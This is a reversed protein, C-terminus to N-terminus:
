RPWGGVKGGVAGGGGLGLCGELCGGVWRIHNSPRQLWPFPSTASLPAEGSAEIDALPEASHSSQRSEVEAPCALPRAGPLCGPLCAPLHTLLCVDAASETRRRPVAMLFLQRLSVCLWPGGSKICMRGPCARDPHMPGTLPESRDVCAALPERPASTRGLELNKKLAAAAAAAPGAHWTNAHEDLALQQELAASASRSAGPALNLYATIEQPRSSSLNANRTPNGARCSRCRAAQAESLSHAGAQGSASRARSQRGAAGGLRGRGAHRCPRRCLSPATIWPTWTVTGHWWPTCGPPWSGTHPHPNTPTHTYPHPFLPAHMPKAARPLRRLLRCPTACPAATHMRIHFTPMRPPPALWGPGALALCSHLDHGATRMPPAAHLYRRGACRVLLHDRDPVHPIPVSRVTLIIVVEHLAPIRALFRTLVPSVDARM